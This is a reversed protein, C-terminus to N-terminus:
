VYVPGIVLDIVLVMALMIYVAALSREPSSENFADLPIKSSMLMHYFQEENM